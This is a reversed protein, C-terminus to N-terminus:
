KYGRGPGNGGLAIPRSSTKANAHKGKAYDKLYEGVLKDLSLM